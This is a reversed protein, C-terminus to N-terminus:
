LTVIFALYSHIPDGPNNKAGLSVNVNVLIQIIQISHINKNSKNVPFPYKQFEFGQRTASWMIDCGMPCQERESYAFVSHVIGGQQGGGDYFNM